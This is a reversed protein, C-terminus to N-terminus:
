QTLAPLPYPFCQVEGRGFGHLAVVVRSRFISVQPYLAAIAQCVDPSLVGHLLANGQDDLNKGIQQWDLANVRTVAKDASISGTVQSNTTVSEDVFLTNM